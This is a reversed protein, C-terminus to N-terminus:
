VTLKIHRRLSRTRIFYSNVAKRGARQRCAQPHVQGEERYHGAQCQARGGLEAEVRDAEGGGEGGVDHVPVAADCLKTSGSRGILLKM